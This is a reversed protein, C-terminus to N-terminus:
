EHEPGAAREETLIRDMFRQWVPTPNWIRQVDALAADAAEGLDLMRYLAVFVSVRMNAACHVFVKEGAHEGMAQRFRRFDEPRPEQFAVPIHVYDMGLSQVLGAEDTLSYDADHLSLNIVTRFGAGAVARLQEETPQGATALREGLPLYHYIDDLTAM